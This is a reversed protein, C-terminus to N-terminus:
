LTMAFWAATKDIVSNAMPQGDGLVNFIHDANQV